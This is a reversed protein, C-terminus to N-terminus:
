YAPPGTFIGAQSFAGIISYEKTKSSPYIGLLGIKKHDTKRSSLKVTINKEKGERAFRIDIKQNPYKRLEKTLSEWDNVAVGNVSILSDGPELNAKYAPTDEAVAGIVPRSLDEEQTGWISFSAALLFFGCLFNFFPGAFVIGM